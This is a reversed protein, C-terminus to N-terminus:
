STAEVDANGSESPNGRAHQFLSIMPNAAPIPRQAAHSVGAPDEGLPRLEPSRGRLARQAASGPHLGKTDGNPQSANCQRLRTCPMNRTLHHHIIYSIHCISHAIHYLVYTIPGGHSPAPPQLQRARRLLPAAVDQNRLKNKLRSRGIDNKVFCRAAHWKLPPVGCVMAKECGARPYPVPHHVPHFVPIPYRDGTTDGKHFGKAWTQCAAVHVPKSQSPIPGMRVLLPANLPASRARTSRRRAATCGIYTHTYIDIYIYIYLSLYIYIYIYLSLSIYISLNISLYIYIYIYVCM